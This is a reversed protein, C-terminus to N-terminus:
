EVRPDLAAMTQEVEGDPLSQFYNGVVEAPTPTGM